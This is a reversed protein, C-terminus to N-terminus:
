GPAILRRPAIGFYKRFAHSFAVADSYGALEAVRVVSLSGSALLVAARELRMARHYAIPAAGFALKFYRALHFTSLTAVAGLERLSVTRDVNAHLFRRARELRDFLDLATSVKAVKLNAIAEADDRHSRDRRLGIRGVANLPRGIVGFRPAAAQDPTWTEIRRM